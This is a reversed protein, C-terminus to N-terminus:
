FGSLKFSNTKNTKQKNNTKTKTTTKTKQSACPVYKEAEHCIKIFNIASNWTPSWCYSDPFAGTQPFLGNLNFTHLQHKRQQLYKIREEELEKGQRAKAAQIKKQIMESFFIHKGKKVHLKNRVIGAERDCLSVIQIVWYVLPWLENWDHNLAIRFYDCLSVTFNSYFITRCHWSMKYNLGRTSMARDFGMLLLPFFQTKVSM